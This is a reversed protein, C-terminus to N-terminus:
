IEIARIAALICEQYREKLADPQIIEVSDGWTFLHWAMETLGSARFKIVLGGDPQEVLSQCPHFRFRRADAAAEPSFRWEIDFQEGDWFTGFSRSAFAQLDFTSDREFSLNLLEVAEINAIVYLRHERVQPHTNLGILYDRSGSLFGYPHVRPRSLRGTDRRRYTLRVQLGALIADRLSAVIAADTNSKPGPRVLVGNAELLAEIDPEYRRITSRPLVAELKLSLRELNEAERTAGQQRLRAAALKLETLEELTPAAFAVFKASPLKWRKRGNDLQVSILTGGTMRDLSDRLREVTRRSVALLDAMEDLTLGGRSESLALGLQILREAPSYRDVKASANELEDM